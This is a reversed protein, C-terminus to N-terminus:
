NLQIREGWPIKAKGKVLWLVPIGTPKEPFTGQADTFYVVLDAHLESQQLWDFAPIFSTGGGGKLEAPLQMVQWPDFIWPGNESLKDDCAHLIIRAQIHSKIADVESIFQKIEEDSVSGSVDIFVCIDLHTSKLAPLIAEGSRRSARLYSYDERGRMMMFRSLLHRWPLQPRLCDDFLRTLRNSLKGAQRARTAANSLVQNWKKELIDRQQNGLEPPKPRDTFPLPHSNNNSAKSFDRERPFLASDNYLHQDPTECASQNELLPYIEEATMDIYETLYLTDEIPTLGEDILIPNIAYDCAMDWRKKDRHRRRFFHTLACHLAEHALTFETEALSISSIYRPNFYFNVMDTATTKCWGDEVAIMPLRVVLAGLFPKDLILRTKAASLKDDAIRLSDEPKNM